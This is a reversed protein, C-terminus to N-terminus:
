AYFAVTNKGHDKAIYMAADAFKIIDNPEANTGDFMAIGISASCSHMVTIGEEGSRQVLLAYPEALGYRLKEAVSAAHLKSEAPDASLESLLVVFEDGGFRAVTDIERVCRRMREAVQLLLQDGAEHGHLDNLPKFKDLDLFILTGRTGNRACSAISMQLRDMMMRRNPLKTLPDHFAMQRISEEMNHRETIDTAIGELGIFKGEPDKWIAVNSRHWRWNGGSDRVRYEAGSQRNGSRVVENIVKTCVALDDAHVFQRFNQGVVDAASHGLLLTWAPSVFTLVGDNTLTYIIDHSNEVLLRYKEESAHLAKVVLKREDAEVQLLNRQQEVQTRLSEREILNRIRQRAIEVRIPKTIYDAAGLALGDMEAAMDHMATVFVIPVNRITAHARLRLFTEFGDMNPMMVDLLILDPPTEVALALGMAGSNAIQLTFEKALAAGLTMLNSPVDDIALIRAKARGTV